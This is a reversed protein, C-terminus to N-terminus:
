ERYRRPGGSESGDGIKLGDYKTSVSRIKNVCPKSDSGYCCIYIHSYESKPKVLEVYGDDLQMKYAKGKELLNIVAKKVEESVVAGGAWPRM